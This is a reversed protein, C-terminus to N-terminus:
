FRNKGEFDVVMPKNAANWTSLVLVANATPSTTPDPLSTTTVDPSPTTETCSYNDCPCGGICNEKFFTLKM